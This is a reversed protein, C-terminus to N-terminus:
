HMGCCSIPGSPVTSLERKGLLRTFVRPGASSWLWCCRRLARSVWGERMVPWEEDVVVETYTRTLEQIHPGEPVPLRHAPWSVEALQSAERDATDAAEFFGEWLALIM